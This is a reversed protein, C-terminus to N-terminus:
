AGTLTGGQTIPSIATGVLTNLGSLATSIVSSTNSNHSLVVAVIALGVIAAVLSIIWKSSEEM